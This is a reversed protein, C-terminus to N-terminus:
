KKLKKMMIGKYAEVGPQDYANVNLLEGEFATAIELMYLLQGLTTEDVRPLTITLNPRSAVALSEENAEQAAHLVQSMKLGCLFNLKEEDAFLSPIVLERAGFEEVRITTIVKNYKGERHQQTQAHMDTTGLAPVPTRGEYVNKGQLDKEKGLSEALLQVYWDAVSKLANSYPMLVGIDKGHQQYALTHLVAYLAGPNQWVDEKRCAADMEAAGALLRRIDIGVVAATVLGVESLVSWRGGVGDPVEFTFLDHANAIKRLVGKEKDTVATVHKNMKLGHQDLLSKIQMFASMPEVTGGSKSILIFHTKKIDLIELLATLRAPDLNDGAFYLRPWGERQAGPLENWYPHRLADQLTKNGLYSGGIGLSVVNEFGSKMREAWDTIKTLLAEPQYPLEMFKVQEGHPLMEGERIKKLHSFANQVRSQLATVESVSVGHEAGIKDAMM